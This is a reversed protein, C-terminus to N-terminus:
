PTSVPGPLTAAPAGACADCANYTPCAPTAYTVAPVTTQQCAPGRWLCELFRCGSAGALLTGIFTLLLIRRM